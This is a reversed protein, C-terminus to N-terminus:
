INHHRKDSLHKRILTDGMLLLLIVTPLLVVLPNLDMSSLDSLGYDLQISPLDFGINGTIFYYIVLPLAIMAAIGSAIGLGTYLKNRFVSKAKKRTTALHIQQMLRDEFGKPPDSLEMDQFLSRLHDKEQEKM